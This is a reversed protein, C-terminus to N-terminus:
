DGYKQVDSDEMTRDDANLPEIGIARGASLLERPKSRREVIAGLPLGRSLFTSPADIWRRAM